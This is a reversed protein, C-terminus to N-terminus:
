VRRSVIHHVSTVSVTTGVNFSALVLVITGNDLKNRAALAKGVSATDNLFSAVKGGVTDVNHRSGFNAQCDKVRGVLDSKRGLHRGIQVEKKAFL